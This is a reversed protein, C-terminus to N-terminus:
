GRRYHFVKGPTGNLLVSSIGTTLIGHIWDIWKQPFGKHRLIQIIVEHEIKDFAKEFNLKLIIMEKRSKHCIHLYEFPWPFCDQISRNKIFGYQNQHAIRPIESQLRNVLLKTLLKISSNLLSIPRYDSVVM